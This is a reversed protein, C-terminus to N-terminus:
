KNLNLKEDICQPSEIIGGHEIEKISIDDISGYFDESATIAFAGNGTSELVDTYTGNSDFFSGNVNSGGGRLSSFVSGSLVNSTTYSVKYTKGADFTIAQSIFSPSNSVKSIKGNNYSWGSGLSWGDANGDFDGNTSLEASYVGDLRVRKRFNLTITSYFDVLKKDICQAAEVIGGDAKVRSIFAKTEDSFGFLMMM